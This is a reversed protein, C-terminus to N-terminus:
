IGVNRIKRLISEQKRAYLINISCFWDNEIFLIIRKKVFVHSETFILMNRASYYIRIMKNETSFERNHFMGPVLQVLISSSKKRTLPGCNNIDQHNGFM